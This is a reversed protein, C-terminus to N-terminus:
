LDEGLEFEYSSDSGFIKYNQNQPQLSSLYIKSLFIIYGYYRLMARLPSKFHCFLPACLFFNVAAASIYKQTFSEVFGRQRQPLTFTTRMHWRVQWVVVFQTEPKM